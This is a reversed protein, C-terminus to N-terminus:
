LIGNNASGYGTAFSNINAFTTNANSQKPLRIVDIFIDSVM